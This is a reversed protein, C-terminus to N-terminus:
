RQWTIPTLFISFSLLFSAYQRSGKKVAVKIAAFLVEVVVARAEEDCERYINQEHTHKTKTKEEVEKKGNKTNKM